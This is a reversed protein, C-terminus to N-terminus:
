ILLWGYSIGGVDAFCGINGPKGVGACIAIWYYWTIFQHPGGSASIKHKM